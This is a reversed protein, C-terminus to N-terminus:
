SRNYTGLRALIDAMNPPAPPLGSPPQQAAASAQPPGTPYQGQYQQQQPHPFGPQAYPHAGPVQPSATSLTSLLNQLNSADAKPPYGPPFGPPPAHPPASNYPAPPQGYSPPYASPPPAGYQAPPPQQQYPYAPPAQGSPAYQAPPAAYSPTSPPQALSNRERMVLEACIPPDLNDYEEFQVDRNGGARKFITLGIRGTDQNVRRLKSIALVGEVIQRRIVADENLRASITLVDVRVGRSSFAKEVWSLFDRELGELAIIQVEPVDRPQRRPLPLDDYDPSRRSGHDRYRDDRGYGPSRSRTRYRDDRRRGYDRPSPSRNYNRGGDRGRGRGNSNRDNRRNDYPSRSRRGQNQNQQKDRPPKQPKSIELHIRKDRIQRGQEASLARMCDEVRLFQVFGYAQKISIQAIEGFHHFVHFIDRKTVKESSLNGVFLRSGPPFQDWRAENVYRREENMFYDYKRQTEPTWPIDETGALPSHERPQERTPTFQPQQQPQQQAFPTSGTNPASVPSQQNQYQENQGSTAQNSAAGVPPVFNHSQADAANGTSNARNHAQVAPNAAHPHYDRIHQSHVYAANILPQDQPPPRPPLGSPSALGSLSAAPDAQSQSPSLASAVHPGNNTPTSTAAPAAISSSLQDLLAQVNVGGPIPMSQSPETKVESAQLANANQAFETASASHGAPADQTSTSHPKNDNHDSSDANHSLGNSNTTQADAGNTATETSNSADNGNQQASGDDRNLDDGNGGTSYPSPITVNQDDPDRWAGPRLETDHMAANNMHPEAQNFGVDMMKDLVPISTPQPFHLPKPSAPSLLAPESRLWAEEPPEPPASSGTDNTTM